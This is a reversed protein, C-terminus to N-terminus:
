HANGAEVVSPGQHSSVGSTLQKACGRELNLLQMHEAGTILLAPGHGSTNPGQVILGKERLCAAFSASASITAPDTIIDGVVRRHGGHCQRLALEAQMPTMNMPIRKGGVIWATIDSEGQPFTIGHNMMCDTYARVRREVERVIQHRSVTTVRKDSSSGGCSTFSMVSLLCAFCALMSGKNIFLCLMKTTFSPM